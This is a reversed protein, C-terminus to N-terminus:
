PGIFAVNIAGAKAEVLAEDHGAKGDRNHQVAM